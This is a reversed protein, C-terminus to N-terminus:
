NCFEIRNVRADEEKDKNTHLFCIEFHFFRCGCTFFLIAIHLLTHLLIIATYRSAVPPYATCVTDTGTGTGAQIYIDTDTGILAAVVNQKSKRDLITARSRKGQLSHFTNLSHKLLFSELGGGFASPLLRPPVFCVDVV